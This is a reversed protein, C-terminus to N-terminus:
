LSFLSSTIKILINLCIGICQTYPLQKSATQFSNAIFEYMIELSFLLLLLKNSALSHFYYIQVEFGYKSRKLRLLESRLTPQEVEVGKVRVSHLRCGSNSMEVGYSDQHPMMPMLFSSGPEHVNTAEKRLSVQAQRMM